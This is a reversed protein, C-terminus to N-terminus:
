WRLNTECASSQQIIWGERRDNAQTSPHGGRGGGNVPPPTAGLVFTLRFYGLRRRGGASLPGQSMCEEDLAVGWIFMDGADSLEEFGKALGETRAQPVEDRFVVPELHPQADIHLVTMHEFLSDGDPVEGSVAADQMVIELDILHEVSMSVLNLQM